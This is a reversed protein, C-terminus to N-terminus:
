CFCVNVSNKGCTIYACLREPLNYCGCGITCCGGMICFFIYNFIFLLLMGGRSQHAPATTKPM